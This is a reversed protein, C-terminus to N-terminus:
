NTLLNFLNIRLGFAFHYPDIVSRDNINLDKFLPTLGAELYAGLLGYNFTLRTKLQFRNVPIDKTYTTVVEEENQQFNYSRSHTSFFTFQPILELRLNFTHKHANPYFTFHMPLDVSATNIISTWTGGGAPTDFYNMTPTNQLSSFAVNPQLFQYLNAHLEAGVGAAIHDDMYFSYSIQWGMDNGFIAKIPDNILGNGTLWQNYGFFFDNHIRHSEDYKKKSPQTASKKNTSDYGDITTHGTTHVKGDYLVLANDSIDFTLTYHANSTSATTGVHLTMDNAAATTTLKNGEIIVLREKDNPAAGTYSIWNCTDKELRVICNGSVVLHSIAQKLNQRYTTSQAIGQTAITLLTIVFVIKKM